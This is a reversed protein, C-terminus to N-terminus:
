DNDEGRMDAGCNGCFNHYMQQKINHCESCHYNGLGNGYDVYEWKGKPRLEDLRSQKLEELADRIRSTWRHCCYNEQDYEKCGNCWEFIDNSPVVTPANNIIGKVDKSTYAGETFQEKLADLDGLRM